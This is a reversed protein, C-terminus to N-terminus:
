APYAAIGAGSNDSLICNNVNLTGEHNYSGTM